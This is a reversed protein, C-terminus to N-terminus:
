NGCLLLAVGCCCLILWAAQPMATMGGFPVYVYDASLDLPLPDFFVLDTRTRLLWNYQRARKTEEEVVMRYCERVARWQSLVKLASAFSFSRTWRDKGCAEAQICRRQLSHNCRLSLEREPVLRLDVHGYASAVSRHLQANYTENGWYGVLAVHLGVEVGASQLPLLLRSHFQARM